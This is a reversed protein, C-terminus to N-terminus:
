INHRESGAGLEWFFFHLSLSTAATSDCIPLYQSISRIRVKKKILQGSAWESCSLQTEIWSIRILSACGHYHVYIFHANIVTELVQQCPRQFYKRVPSPTLPPGPTFKSMPKSDTQRTAEINHMPFYQLQRM